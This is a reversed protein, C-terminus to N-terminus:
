PHEDAVTGSRERCFLQKPRVATRGRHHGPAPSAGQLDLRVWETPNGAGASRLGLIASGPTLFLTYGQGRALFKVHEDVQGENGEFSLPLM